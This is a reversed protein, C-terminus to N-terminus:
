WSFFSTDNERDNERQLNTSYSEDLFSNEVGSDEQYEHFDIFICITLKVDIKICVPRISIVAAFSVKIQIITSKRERRIIIKVFRDIVLM